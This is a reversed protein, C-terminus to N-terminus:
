GFDGESTAQCGVGRDADGIVVWGDCRGTSGDEDNDAKFDKKSTGQEYRSPLTASRQFPELFSQMSLLQGISLPPASSMNLGFQSPIQVIQFVFFPFTGCDLVFFTFNLPRTAISTEPM